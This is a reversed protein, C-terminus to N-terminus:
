HGNRQGLLDLLLGRLSHLIVGTSLGVMGVVCLLVAILASGVALQLTARYITIVRYGWWLGLLLAGMGPVGFFLLPRHQGILQLIGNLVELGHRVPNRKAKDDYGVAIPVEVIRLDLQRALFQMESEVSFGQSRFTIAELAARSFARFGTQSDSLALGSGVNSALNLGRMGLVRWFPIRSRRGMFRSGVAMDAEGEQIPLIVAPIDRADHQGDADLVVVVLPAMTRAYAFGTNLAAGKGQNLEHRLVIAGAAEAVQATADRSGDDVVIVSDVCQRVKLVVSGIFRDEDHAPIVAVIPPTSRERSLPDTEAVKTGMGTM